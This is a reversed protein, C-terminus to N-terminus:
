ATLELKGNTETTLAEIASILERFEAPL